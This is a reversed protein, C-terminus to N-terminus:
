SKHSKKDWEWPIPNGNGNVDRTCMYQLCGILRKVHTNLFRRSALVICSVLFYFSCFVILFLFVTSCDLTRSPLGTPQTDGLHTSNASFTPKRWLMTQSYQQFTSFAQKLCQENQRRTM